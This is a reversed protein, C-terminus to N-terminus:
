QRRAPTTGGGTRTTDIYFSATDAPAFRLPAAGAAPVVRDGKFLEGNRRTALREEVPETVHHVNERRPLALGLRMDRNRRELTDPSQEAAVFTNTEALRREVRALKQELELTARATLSIQHRLWVAGLGASGGLVFVVLMGVLLQNIFANKGSLHM